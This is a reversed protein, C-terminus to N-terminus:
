RVTSRGLWGVPTITCSVALIAYRKLDFAGPAIREYVGGSLYTTGFISPKYQLTFRRGSTM